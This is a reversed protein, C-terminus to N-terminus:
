APGPWSAAREPAPPEGPAVPASLVVAAPRRRPIRWALWSGAALSAFWAFTTEIELYDWFDTRAAEDAALRSPDAAGEAAHMAELRPVLARRFQLAEGLALAVVLAVVAAAQVRTGLARAAFRAAAGAAAGAVVLAWPLARGTQASAAGWVAACGVAALLAAGLAREAADLPVPGPAVLPTGCARCPLPVGGPPPLGEPAAAGCPCLSSSAGTL